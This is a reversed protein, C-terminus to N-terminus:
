KIKKSILWTKKHKSWARKVTPLSVGYRKSADDLAAEVKSGDNVEAAVDCAIEVDRVYDPQKGGGRKKVSRNRIILERPEGFTEPDILAALRIRNSHGLDGEHNRVMRALAARAALERDSGSELYTHRKIKAASKTRREWFWIGHLYESALEEDSPRRKAMIIV